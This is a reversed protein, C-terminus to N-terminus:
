LVAENDKYMCLYMCLIYIYNSSTQENYLRRKLLASLKAHSESEAYVWDGKSAKSKAHQQEPEISRQQMRQLRKKLDRPEIDVEAEAEGEKEESSSQQLMGPPAVSDVLQQLEKLYKEVLMEHSSRIDDGSTNNGGGKNKKMKRADIAEQM